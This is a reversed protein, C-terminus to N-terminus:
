AAEMATMLTKSTNIVTSICSMTDRSSGEEVRLAKIEKELSLIISSRDEAGVEVGGRCQDPSFIQRHQRVESDLERIRDQLDAIEAERDTLKAMTDALLLEPPLDSLSSSEEGTSRTHLAELQGDEDARETNHERQAAHLDQLEQENDALRQCLDDIEQQMARRQAEARAEDDLPAVQEQLARKLREIQDATLVWTTTKLQEYRVLVSSRLVVCTKDTLTWQSQTEYVRTSDRPRVTSASPSLPHNIQLPADGVACRLREEEDSLTTLAQKFAVVRRELDDVSEKNKRQQDQLDSLAGTIRYADAHGCVWSQLAGLARSGKMADKYTFRPDGLLKELNRHTASSDNSPVFESIRKVFRNSRIVRQIDSWTNAHEGLALVVAKLILEVVAPPQGYSRLERWDAESASRVLHLAKDLTSNAAQLEQQYGEYGAEYRARTTALTAHASMMAAYTQAKEEVVATLRNLAKKRDVPSIPSEAPQSASLSDSKWMVLQVLRPEPLAAVTGLAWRWSRAQADIYEYAVLDHIAVRVFADSSFDGLENGLNQDVGPASSDFHTSGALRGTREWDSSSQEAARPM